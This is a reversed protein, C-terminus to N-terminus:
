RAAPVNWWFTQKNGTGALQGVYCDHMTSNRIIWQGQQVRRVVIYQTGNVEREQVKLIASDSPNSTCLCVRECVQEKSLKDLHVAQTLCLRREDQPRM